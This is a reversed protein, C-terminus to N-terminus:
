KNKQIHENLKKIAKKATHQKIIGERAYADAVIVNDGVYVVVISANSNAVGAMICTTYTKKKENYELIKGIMGLQTGVAEFEVNEIKIEIYESNTSVSELMKSTVGPEYKKVAKSLLTDMQKKDM